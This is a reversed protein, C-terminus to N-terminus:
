VGDQYHDTSTNPLIRGEVEATAAADAQNHRRYRGFGTALGLVVGGVIGVAVVVRMDPHRGSQVLGFLVLGIGTIVFVLGRGLSGGQKKKGLVSRTLARLGRQAAAENAKVEAKRAAAAKKDGKKDAM